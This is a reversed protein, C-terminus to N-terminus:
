EGREFKAFGVRNGNSDRLPLACDATGCALECIKPTVIRIIEATVDDPTEGFAANDCNIELKFKMTNVGLIRM